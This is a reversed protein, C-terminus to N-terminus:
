CKCINYYWLFYFFLIKPVSRFCLNNGKLNLNFFFVLRNDLWEFSKAHAKTKRVLYSIKNRMPANLNEVLNQNRKVQKIGMYM